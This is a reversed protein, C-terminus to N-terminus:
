QEWGSTLCLSILRSIPSCLCLWPAPEEYDTVILEEKYQLLVCTGTMSSSWSMNDLFGLAKRWYSVKNRWQRAASSVLCFQCLITQFPFDHISFIFHLALSVNSQSSLIRLHQWHGGHKTAGESEVQCPHCKGPRKLMMRVVYWRFVNIRYSFPQQCFLLLYVCPYPMAASCVVSSNWSNRHWVALSPRNCQVINQVNNWWCGTWDSDLPSLKRSGNIHSLLFCM